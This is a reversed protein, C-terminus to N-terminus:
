KLTSIYAVVNNIMDDTVLTKAMPAMQMGFVDKAHAGRVGDKFNKIQRVLYWDHQNTLAPSNLAKNGEGNAGHCATCIAYSAKGAEANGKITIAPKNPKLSAVYASVDKIAQDTTLTKAMPAMQMGFTDKPHAGRVGKKYNKLQRELYWDALGAIAPSNLAKNGEGNAGHCAICVAYATKGKAADGGASLANLFGIFTFTLWIFLAKKIHM